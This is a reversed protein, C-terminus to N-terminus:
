VIQFGWGIMYVWEVFCVFKSYKFIGTTAQLPQEEYIM